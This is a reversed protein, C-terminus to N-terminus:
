AGLRRPENHLQWKCPQPVSSPTRRMAKLGLLNGSEVARKHECPPHHPASTSLAVPPLCARGKLNVNFDGGRWTFRVGDQGKGGGQRVKIEMRLTEKEAESQELKLQLGARAEEAQLLAIEKDAVKDVMALGEQLAAEAAKAQEKAIDAAAIADEITAKAEEIM